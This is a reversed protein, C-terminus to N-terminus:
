MGLYISAVKKLDEEMTDPTTRSRIWIYKKILNGETDNREINCDMDSWNFAEVLKDIQDKNISISNSRSLHKKLHFTNVVFDIFEIDSSSRHRLHGDKSMNAFSVWMYEDDICINFCIVDFKGLWTNDYIKKAEKIFNGFSKEPDIGQSFSEFLKLYNM